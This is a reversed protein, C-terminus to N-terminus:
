GIRTRITHNPTIAGGGQEAEKLVEDIARIRGNACTLAEDYGVLVRAVQAATKAALSPGRCPQRLEDPVRPVMMVTRTEPACAACLILSLSILRLM